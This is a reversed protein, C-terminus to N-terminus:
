DRQLHGVLERLLDDDRQADAPLVLVLTQFVGALRTRLTTALQDYTASIVWEDLMEDTILRPMEAWQQKVSLAHLKRGVDEWGHHVLVAQYAPTSAYFAIQTRVTDRANEVDAPTRGVAFFPAGVMDFSAADRGVERAGEAVAPLLVERTFRFTAIPHLRLGDCLEGALKAMYVNVAAAYLPVHPHEIPGPNFFQPLLTFKYHEGEFYTPKKPNQFSAFIAKLCQLYERMRPGPGGPWPTSYRRENHAKVQSGLGLNFRGNSYQQLDWACQATVMPSRPFAVAVNTGLKVRETCSAAIALPLFPDHGAEPASVGNFGLAELRRASDIIQAPAVRAQGKGAYQETDIALLNAEVRLGM